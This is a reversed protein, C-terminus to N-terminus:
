LLANNTVRRTVVCCQGRQMLCSWFGRWNVCNWNSYRCLTFNGRGNGLESRKTSGTNASDLWLQQFSTTTATSVPQIPDYAFDPFSTWSRLVPFAPNNEWKVLAFAASMLTRVVPANCKEWDRAVRGEKWFWSGGGPTIGCLATHIWGWWDVVSQM